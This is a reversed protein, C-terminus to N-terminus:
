RNGEQLQTLLSRNERLLRSRDTADGVSRLLRKIDIRDKQLYDFIGHQIGAIASELDGHGTLVVIQTDPSTTRIKEALEIGGMGPMVLDVVAAAYPAGATKELAEEPRLCAAVDYGKERLVEAIM